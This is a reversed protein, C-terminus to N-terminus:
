LYFYRGLIHARLGTLPIRPVRLPVHLTYLLYILIGPNLAWLLNFTKHEASLRGTLPANPRRRRRAALATDCVKGAGRLSCVAASLRPLICRMRYPKQNSAPPLAAPRQAVYPAQSKESSAPAKCPAWADPWCDMCCIVPFIQIM